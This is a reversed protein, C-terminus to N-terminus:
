KEITEHLLKSLFTSYFYHIGKFRILQLHRSIFFPFM